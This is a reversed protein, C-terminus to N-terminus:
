RGEAEPCVIRTIPKLTKVQKWEEVEKWGDIVVQCTSDDALRARIFLDAQADPYVIYCTYCRERPEATNLEDWDGRVLGLADIKVLVDGMERFSNVVVTCHIIPVGASSFSLGTPPATEAIRAFINQFEESQLWKLRITHIDRADNADKIANNLVDYDM